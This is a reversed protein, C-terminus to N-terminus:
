EDAKEDWFTSQLDLSSAYLKGFNLATWKFLQLCIRARSLFKWVYMQKRTAFQLNDTWDAHLFLSREYLILTQQQQQQQITNTKWKTFQDCSQKYVVQSSRMLFRIQFVPEQKKIFINRTYKQKNFSIQKDVEPYLVTWWCFGTIQM